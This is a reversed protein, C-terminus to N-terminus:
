RRLLWAELRPRLTVALLLAAGGALLVAPGLWAPGAPLEAALFVTLVTVPLRGLTSCVLFRALSLRSLGAVACVADGPLVPVLFVLGLGVGGGAAVVATYRDITEAPVLREALPRGWRRALGFVVMSGAATGAVSLGLAPWPGFALAGAPPLVSGPLPAAIVQAAEALFFVLPAWPGLGQVWARLPEPSSLIATAASWAGALAAAAATGGAAGLPLLALVGAVALLVVTAIM